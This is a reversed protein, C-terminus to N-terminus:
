AYVNIIDRVLALFLDGENTARWCYEDLHSQFHDQPVGRMKLIKVKADLWSREIGQTRAGTAPDMYAQQHNVTQHLFGHNNLTVYAPSEDSYITSGAACERQIIPLM